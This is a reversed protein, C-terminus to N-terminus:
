IWGFLKPPNSLNPLGQRTSNVKSLSGRIIFSIFVKGCLYSM